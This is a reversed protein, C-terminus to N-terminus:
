ATRYEDFLRRFAPMSNQITERAVCYSIRVYGGVGFDDSPVLLLDHEMARRSFAQADPELSRMWLYFAGNPEVYRYGIRSLGQTLLDRNAAYAAVDAPEDVCREVVRQILAPACVYGLQRGAGAVAAMIERHAPMTDPVLVYGVREGPLSLSKSWSYCVVTDRYVSPMWPVQAGGYVLERYPEDSVLYVTRGNDRSAEALLEALRELLERPYVAGTPNNPSNVILARTRPGVKSAIDDLDPMGQEDADSQVCTCGASEIWMRYEPFFPAIAVVEDGPDCVAHLTADIAAAAGMTMYLDDATYSTGMRRNLSEAIATRTSPLGPAPTYGHLQLSPMDLAEIIARRVGEPAPVNPNGLSFDYVKDAGVQAKRRQGYMYLNRISSGQVGLQYSTDNCSEPM